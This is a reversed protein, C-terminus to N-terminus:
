KTLTMKKTDIRQGSIILSYLYDGVALTGGTITVQNIGTNTLNFTKLEQGQLNYIVIMPNQSSTPVYCTIITNQSFPNPYNQNLSPSETTSAVQSTGTTTNTVSQYSTCCQSLAQDLKSVITNLQEVQTQLTTLQAQQQTIISDKTDNQKSLEQIAKVVPV